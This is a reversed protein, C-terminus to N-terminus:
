PLYKIEFLDSYRRQDTMATAELVYKKGPQIDHAVPLYFEYSKL